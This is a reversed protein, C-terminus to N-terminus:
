PCGPRHGRHLQGPVANASARNEFIYGTGRPLPQIRLLVHGYQARAGPEPVVFRGEQEVSGRVTERWAIQPRGVNVAVDFERRMRDVIIELHLEGMGAVIVRGSDDDTRM